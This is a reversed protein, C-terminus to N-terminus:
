QCKERDCIEQENHVQTLPMSFAFSHLAHRRAEAHRYMPCIVDVFLRRLARQQAGTLPSPNPEAMSSYTEIM